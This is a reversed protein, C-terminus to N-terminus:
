YVVGDSRLFYKYGKIEKIPKAPVGGYLFFEEIFTKNLLSSAGLISFNPLKSGPLLVSNTGVFCYDGITIPSCEQRSNELNISHTLIQSFNGAVTTFKGIIVSDTCDVIHRATISSHEGLILETIRDKKYLFFKSKKPEATIWNFNGIKSNEALIVREQGKCVTFHGIYSNPGMELYNPIILSFGIKASPSIRFNYLKNLIIRRLKWPFIFLICYVLLKIIM